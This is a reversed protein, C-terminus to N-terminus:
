LLAFGPLCAPVGSPGDLTLYMIAIETPSLARFNKVKSAFRKCRAVAREPRRARAWSGELGGPERSFEPGAQGVPGSRGGRDSTERHRTNCRAVGATPPNTEYVAPDM